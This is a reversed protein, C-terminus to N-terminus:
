PRVESLSGVFVVSEGIIKTRKYKQLGYRHSIGVSKSLSGQPGIVIQNMCLKSLHALVM